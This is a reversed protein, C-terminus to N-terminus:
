PTRNETAPLSSSPTNASRTDLQWTEGLNSLAQKAAHQEAAKKSKGMGRGIVDQGLRVEISFDRDHDPGVISVVRYRPIANRHRQTLEQLTSKYDLISDGREALDVQERLADLVFRRAADLGCSLYIAGIIAEMCASLISERTRGGSLEEGRGLLLFEGVGLDQAAHSLIRASVVVSKIRSLAGEPDQPFLQYLYETIILGLVSDGLFELRENGCVPPLEHENLYSSHILAQNLLPLSVEPIRLRLALQGLLAQREPTLRAQEGQPEGADANDNVDTNGADVM